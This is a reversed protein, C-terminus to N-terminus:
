RRFVRLSLHIKTLKISKLGVLLNINIKTMEKEILSLVKGPCDSFEEALRDFTKNEDTLMKYSVWIAKNKTNWIVEKRAIPINANRTPINVLKLLLAYHDPYIM